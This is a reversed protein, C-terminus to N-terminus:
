KVLDRIAKAVEMAYDKEITVGQKGPLWEGKENLYLQRISVYENKGSEPKYIEIRFQKKPSVKVITTM